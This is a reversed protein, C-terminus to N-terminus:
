LLVGTGGYLTSLYKPSNLLSVNSTIGDRFPCVLLPRPDDDVGHVTSWGNLVFLENTM